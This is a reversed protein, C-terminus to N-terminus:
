HRNYYYYVRQLPQLVFPVGVETVYELWWYFKWLSSNWRFFYIVNKVFIILIYVFRWSGFTFYFSSWSCVCKVNLSFVFFVIYTISFPFEFAASCIRELKISGEIFSPVIRLVFLVYRHWFTSNSSSKISTMWGFFYLRGSSSGSPISLSM